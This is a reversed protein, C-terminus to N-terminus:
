KGCIRKRSIFQTYTCETIWWMQEENVDKSFSHCELNLSVSLSFRVRGIDNWHLCSPHVQPQGSSIASYWITKNETSSYLLSSFYTILTENKIFISRPNKEGRKDFLHFLTKTPKKREKKQWNFFLFMKFTFFMLFYFTM